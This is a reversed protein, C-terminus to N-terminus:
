RARALVWLAPLVGLTARLRLAPTGPPAAPATPASRGRIPRPLGLPGRGEGRPGRVRRLLDPASRDRPARLHRRPPAARRRRRRPRRPGPFRGRPLPRHFLLRSALPPLAYGPAPPTRRLTPPPAGPRPVHPRGMASPGRGRSGKASMHASCAYGTMCAEHGPARHRSVKKAWAPLTMARGRGAMTRAAALASLPTRPEQCVRGCPHPSHARAPGAGLASRFGPPPTCLRTGPTRGARGTRRVVAAACAPLGSSDDHREHPAAPPRVLRTVPASRGCV